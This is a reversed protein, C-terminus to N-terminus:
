ERIEVMQTHGELLTTPPHKLVVSAAIILTNSSLPCHDILEGIEESGDTSLLRQGAHVPETTKITFVKLEHKRKGRYHTRAIIEQGKYCGKNFSLYSTFQLDLRHPLFLGRSEIYIQVHKKQLQLAHWALSGRWQDNKIFPERLDDVHDPNVLFVYYHDGLYYCFYHDDSIVHYPRDDLKMQFPTTDNPNQLYFGFCQYHTALELAVRSLLATKNLSTSTALLLDSPLVLHFGQKRWYIVDLLALIRGKLDCLAGQRMEQENVERLDCSLQGQLFDEAREGLVHLGSLYSLDFLYNKHPEYALEHALPSFATLPRSNIEYNSSKM